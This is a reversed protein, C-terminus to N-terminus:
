SGRVDIAGTGVEVSIQPDAEAHHQLDDVDVEGIGTQLDLGYTGPPVRLDVAGTGVRVGIAEVSATADYALSVDGTGAQADAEASTLGRAEIAGTNLHLDLPGGLAELEMDGTDLDIDVTGSLGTVEVDGTRLDVALDAASPVRLELDGGCCGSCDVNVHLVGDDVRLWSGDLDDGFIEADIEAGPQDHPRVAIDGVGSDIVVARIPEDITVHESRVDVGVCVAELHDEITEGLDGSLDIVCAPLCLATLLPLTQALRYTM